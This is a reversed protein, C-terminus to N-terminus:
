QADRMELCHDAHADLVNDRGMREEAWGCACEVRYQQMPTAEHLHDMAFEWVSEYAIGRERCRHCYHAPERTRLTEVWPLPTLILPQESM